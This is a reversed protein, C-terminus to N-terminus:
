ATVAGADGLGFLKWPSFIAIDALAGLAEGGRQAPWAMAVDEVLLLGREDCWRRWRAVDQGFGLHHIVYLSRVSPDLAAPLESEDPQLDDTADYFRMEVGLAALVEVEAGHHYAPVLVKDGPGLGHARLGHWLGQRAYAYVRCARADLPAPLAGPRRAYLTAPLPAWPSLWGRSM